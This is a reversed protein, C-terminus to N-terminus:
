PRVLVSRESGAFALRFGLARRFHDEIWGGRNVLALTVGYKAIYDALAQRNSKTADYEDCLQQGYVDLRMDMVPRVSPYLERILYAGDPMRENYLVGALGQQAIFAAEETPQREGFGWGLTASSQPGLVYGRAVTMMAFGAVAIAGLARVTRSGCAGLYLQGGVRSLVDHWSRVLIPFGFVVVYPIFRNQRLALYSVVSAIAIDFLPRQPLRLL